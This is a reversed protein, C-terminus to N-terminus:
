FMLGRPLQVNLLVNFILYMVLLFLFSFIASKIFRNVLACKTSYFTTIAVLVLFSSSYIGILEILSVGVITIVIGPLQEFFPFAKFDDVCMDFYERILSTISFALTLGSVIIPFLYAAQNEQFYSVKFMLGCIATVLLAVLFRRDNVISSM